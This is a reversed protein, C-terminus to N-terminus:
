RLLNSLASIYLPKLKEWSNNEAYLRGAYSYGGIPKDYWRDITAAIMRPSIIASNFENCRGSVAAKEYSLVPILLDTPLWTNMPFRDGCMVGMGSAFAEQLPLSLGNFKEPFIFVDGESYLNDSSLTGHRYDVKVNGLEFYGDVTEGLPKQSRIILQIPSKVHQLADLLQQTGNRGKLGGHGANHAFVKATERLKWEQKVPVPIHIGRPYFRQDLASPNIILDPEPFEKPMCEYMPMLVTKVNNKRCYNIISWDFPTEFFMMIDMTKCFDYAAGHDFPRIPISKSKPYWDLNNPHHAHEVVLVDTIVGNDYFSKALIGLGSNTPYVLSGIRM